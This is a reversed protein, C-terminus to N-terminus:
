KMENKGRYMQSGRGPISEGQFFKQVYNMKAQNIVNEQVAERGIRKNVRKPRMGKKTNQPITSVNQRHLPPLINM